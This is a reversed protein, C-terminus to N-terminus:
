WEAVDGVHDVEHADGDLDDEDGHHEDADEVDHDDADILPDLLNARQCGDPDLALEDDGHKDVFPDQQPDDAEQRPQDHGGRHDEPHPVEGDGESPLVLDQQYRRDM